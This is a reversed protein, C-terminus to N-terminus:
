RRISSQPQLRVSAYPAFPLQDIRRNTFVDYYFINTQNYVNIVGAQVQLQRSRIDFIREASIDLRHTPPLRGNYPRDLLLRTEGYRGRVNPLDTRFDFLEDFGIPRTFPFGSGYDWRAAFTYRGLGLSALANVQHRRDHPPQYFQVPEGFWVGFDEQASQYETWSYGYAGFGYFPGRRYEVRGDAGHVRGDALSLEPTFTAITSWTSVPVNYIRRYYGDISWSFGGGISQQWSTQAHIAETRSDDPPRVWATFVSSADRRDSIGVLRQGYLGVAGSMEADVLRRPRWSARLRPEIAPPFTQPDWSL